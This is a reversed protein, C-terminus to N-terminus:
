IPDYIKVVPDFAHTGVEGDSLFINGATNVQFTYTDVGTTTVTGTKVEGNGITDNVGNAHATNVSGCTLMLLSLFRVLLSLLSRSKAKRIENCTHRPVLLISHSRAM